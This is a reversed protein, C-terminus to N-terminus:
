GAQGLFCFIILAATILLFWLILKMIPVRQGNRLTKIGLPITAICLGSAAVISVFSSGKLVGIM